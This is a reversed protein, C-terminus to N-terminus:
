NPRRLASLLDAIESDVTADDQMTAAVEPVPVFRRLARDVIVLQGDRGGAKRSALKM